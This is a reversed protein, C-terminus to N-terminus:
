QVRREVVYSSFEEVAAKSEDLLLTGCTELVRFLDALLRFVLQGDGELLLEPCFSYLRRSVRSTVRPCKLVIVTLRDLFERCRVRFTSFESTKGALLQLGFDSGALFYELAITPFEAVKEGSM